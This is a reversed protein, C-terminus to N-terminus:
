PTYPQFVFVVNGNKDLLFTMLEGDDGRDSIYDDFQQRSLLKTFGDKPFQVYYVCNEDVPYKSYNGDFGAIQYDDYFEDPDLGYKEILDTDSETVWYVQEALLSGQDPSKKTIVYISSDTSTVGASSLDDGRGTLELSGLYLSLAEGNLIERDSSATIFYMYAFSTETAFGPAQMFCGMCDRSDENSGEDWTAFVCDYGSISLKDRYLDSYDTSQAYLEDIGDEHVGDLCARVFDEPSKEIDFLGKTKICANVVRVMGNPDIDEYFYTGDENMDSVAPRIDPLLARNKLYTRNVDSSNDSFFGMEATNYLGCFPLDDPIDAVAEGDDFWKSFHLPYIWDMYAEPLESVPAGPLYVYLENDGEAVGDLGYPDSYIFRVGDKTETKEPENEYEISGIDLKYIYPGEKEYGSFRGSFVCQYITGDPYADSTDGMESDHYEGSFSGDSEVTMYTEWGGAGSTFHFTWKSMEDYLPVVKEKSAPDEEPEEKDEKEAESSGETEEAENGPNGTDTKSDVSVNCGALMLLMCLALMMLIPKRMKKM